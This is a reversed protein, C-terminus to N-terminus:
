GRAALVDAAAVIDDEGPIVLFAAGALPTYTDTGVVRELPMAGLGGEVLATIV